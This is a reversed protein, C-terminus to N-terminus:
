SNSGWTLSQASPESGPAEKPNQTERERGRGLKCETETETEREFIFLVSFLTSNTSFMRSELFLTFLAWHHCLSEM